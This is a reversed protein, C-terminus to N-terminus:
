TDRDILPRNSLAFTNGEPDKGKCFMLDGFIAIKGMKIHQTILKKRTKEVEEVHFVIEVPTRIGKPFSGSYKHLALVFGGANLESYDPEDTIIPFGFIEHYFQQLNSVDRCFIMVGRMRIYPYTDAQPKLDSYIKKFEPIRKRKRVESPTLWTAEKFARSFTQQSEFQYDLAIDIISRNTSILEEVAAHLRQRRLFLGITIGKREQFLRQFNSKSMGVTRAIKDITISDKLHGDIYSVAAKIKGDGKM